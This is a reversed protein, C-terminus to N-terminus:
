KNGFGGGNESRAVALEMGMKKKGMGQGSELSDGDVDCALIWM